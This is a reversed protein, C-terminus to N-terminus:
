EFDEEDEPNSDDYCFWFSGQWRVDVFATDWLYIDVASNKPINCLFGGYGHTQGDVGPDHDTFVTKGGAVVEICDDAGGYAYLKGKRAKAEMHAIQLRYHPTGHDETKGDIQTSPIEECGRCPCEDCMVVKGDKMVIKGNAKWVSAM